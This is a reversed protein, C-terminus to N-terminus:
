EDIMDELDIDPVPIGRKKMEEIPDTMTAVVHTNNIESKDTLGLDRAIINANFLGAAAGEFKQNRIVSEVIECVGSFEQRKRYTAWTKGHIQLFIQLAGLTYPRKKATESYEIFGSVVHAKSEYLPNDDVAKFYEYSADLLAKPSGFVRKSGPKKCALRWFQNGKPAAM